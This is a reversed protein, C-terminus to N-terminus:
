SRIITSVEDEFMVKLELNRYENLFNQIKVLDQDNKRRQITVFMNWESVFFDPTFKTGDRFKYTKPEYFWTLGYRDLWKAYDHELESRFYISKFFFWKRIGIKWTHKLSCSKSCYRANKEGNHRSAFFKKKCALCIKEIPGGRYAPNNVGKLLKKQAKYRCKKSCYTRKKLRVSWLFSKECQPCTYKVKVPHARGGHVRFAHENLFSKECKTCAIM